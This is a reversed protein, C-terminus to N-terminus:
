SLRWRQTDGCTDSNISSDATHTISLRAPEISDQWFACITLDMSVQWTCHAINHLSRRRGEHKSAHFVHCSYSCIDVKPRGILAKYWDLTNLHFITQTHATCACVGAGCILFLQDEVLIIPAVWDSFLQLYTSYKKVVSSIWKGCLLNCLGLNQKRKFADDICSRKNLAHPRLM